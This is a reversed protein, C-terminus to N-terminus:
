GERRMKIAHIVAPITYPAIFNKKSRSIIILLTMYHLDGLSTLCLNDVKLFRKLSIHFNKKKFIFSRIIQFFNILNFHIFLRTRKSFM